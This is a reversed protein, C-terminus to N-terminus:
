CFPASGPPQDTGTTGECNIVPAATQSPVLGPHRHDAVHCADADALCPPRWRSPSSEVKGDPHCIAPATTSRRSHGPPLSRYRPAYYRSIVEVDHPAFYCGRGPRDYDRDHEEHEEHRRWHGDDEHWHKGWAPGSLLLGSLMLGHLLKM